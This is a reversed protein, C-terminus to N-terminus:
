KADEKEKPEYFESIKIRRKHLTTLFYNHTDLYNM